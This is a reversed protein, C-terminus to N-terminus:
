SGNMQNVIRGMIFSLLDEKKEFVMRFLSDKYTPNGQINQKNIKTM